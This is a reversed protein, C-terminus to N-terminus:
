GPSLRMATRLAEWIGPEELREVPESTPEEVVAPVFEAFRCRRRGGGITPCRSAPRIAVARM